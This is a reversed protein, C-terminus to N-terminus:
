LVVRRQGSNLYNTTRIAVLIMADRKCEEPSSNLRLKLERCREIMEQLVQDITYSYEGTWKAVARRIEGRSRSLFAAATPSSRFTGDCCFLKRLDNDYINPHNLGYHERKRQYHTRLTKRLRIM